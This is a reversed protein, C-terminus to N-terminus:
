RSRAAFFDLFHFGRALSLVAGGPRLCMSGIKMIIGIRPRGHTGRGVVDDTNLM